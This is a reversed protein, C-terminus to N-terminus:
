RLETNDEDTAISTATSKVIRFAFVAIMAGITPAIWYVWNYTL